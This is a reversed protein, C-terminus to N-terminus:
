VLDAQVSGALAALNTAGARRADAETIDSRAVQACRDGRDARRRDPLAQGDDGACTEVLPVHHHDIRRRHGAMHRRQVARHCELPSTGASDRLSWVSM